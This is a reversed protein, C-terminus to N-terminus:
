HYLFKTVLEHAFAIHCRDCEIHKGQLTCKTCSNQFEKNAKHINRAGYQRNVGKEEFATM